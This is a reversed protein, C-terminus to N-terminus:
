SAFVVSNYRGVGVTTINKGSLVGSVNVPVPSTKTADMGGIGLKGTGNYGWCYATNDAVACALSIGPVVTLSSAM